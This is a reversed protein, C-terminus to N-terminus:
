RMERKRPSPSASSGSHPTAARSRRSSPTTTRRAPTTRACRRPRTRPSPEPRSVIRQSARSRSRSSATMPVPSPVRRASVVLEADPLQSTSGLETALAQADSWNAFGTSEPGLLAYLDAFSLCEVADNNPNTVVTLGDIAVALEIFEIGAEACTAAEEDKIARSADSIDAEGACFKKFGDGTGPGEVSVDVNPAVDAFLEATRVSIPEVTSSGTVFISGEVDSVEAGDTAAAETTEPAGTDDTAVTTETAGTDTATTDDDDGCAAALLALPLITGAVLKRFKM